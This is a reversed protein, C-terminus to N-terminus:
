TLAMRSTARVALDLWPRRTRWPLLASWDALVRQQGAPSLCRMVGYAPAAAKLMGGTFGAARLRTVLGLRDADARSWSLVADGTGIRGWEASHLLHKRGPRLPVTLALTVPLPEQLLSLLCCPDPYTAQLPACSVLLPHLRLAPERYGWSCAVCVRGGPRSWDDWGSFNGSVPEGPGAMERLVACRACRDEPRGAEGPRGFATWAATLVDL